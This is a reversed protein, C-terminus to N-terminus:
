GVVDEEVGDDDRSLSGRYVAVPGQYGSLRVLPAKGESPILRLLLALAREKLNEDAAANVRGMWELGQYAALKRCITEVVPPTPPEASADSFPTVYCTNLFADIKRSADAIALTVMEDTIAAPWTGPVEARVRDVLTYLPGEASDAVVEFAALITPYPSVEVGSVKAWVHAEAIGLAFDALDIAEVAVFKGGEPNAEADYDDGSTLAPEGGVTATARLTSDADYFEVKLGPDDWNPEVWHGLGDPVRFDFRGTYNKKYKPLTNM